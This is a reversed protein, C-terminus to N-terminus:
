FPLVKLPGVKVGFREAYPTVPKFDSRRVEMWGGRHLFLIAAALTGREEVMLPSHAPDVVAWHLDLHAETVKIVLKTRWPATLRLRASEYGRTAKSVRLTLELKDVPLTPGATQELPLLFTWGGVDEAVLRAADLRIVAKMEGVEIEPPADPAREALEKGITEGLHRFQRLDRPRPAHGEVEIPRYQEPYPLSPDVRLITPGQPRGQDDSTRITETYAWHEAEARNRTLAEQLVPPVAALLACLVLCM